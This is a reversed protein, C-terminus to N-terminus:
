RGLGGFHTEGVCLLLWGHFAGNRSAGAFVFGLGDEVGDAVVAANDDDVVHGGFDAANAAVNQKLRLCDPADLSKEGTQGLGLL